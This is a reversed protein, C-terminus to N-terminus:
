CQMTTNLVSAHPHYLGNSRLVKFVVFLLLLLLFFYCSGELISLPKTWSENFGKGRTPVPDSTSHIEGGHLTLLSTIENKGSQNFKMWIEVRRPGM